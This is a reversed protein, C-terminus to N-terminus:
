FNGLGMEQQGATYAAHAIKMAFNAAKGYVSYSINAQKQLFGIIKRLISLQYKDITKKAITEANKINEMAKRRTNEFQNKMVIGGIVRLDNLKYHLAELTIKEGPITEFMEGHKIKEFDEMGESINVDSKIVNDILVATDDAAKDLDQLYKIVTKVAESGNNGRIKQKCSIEKISYLGITISTSNARLFQDLNQFIGM